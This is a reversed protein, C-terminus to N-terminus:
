GGVPGQNQHAHEKRSSIAPAPQPAPWFAADPFGLRLKAPSSPVRRFGGARQGSAKAAPRASRRRPATLAIYLRLVPKGIGGQPYAIAPMRSREQDAAM